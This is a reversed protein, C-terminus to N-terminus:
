FQTHYWEAIWAGTNMILYKPLKEIKAGFM